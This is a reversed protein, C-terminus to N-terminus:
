RTIAPMTAPQRPLTAPPLCRGCRCACDRDVMLRGFNDREGPIQATLPAARIGAAWIRNGTEIHEGDSLTIGTADLSAVGAGLPDGRSGNSHM